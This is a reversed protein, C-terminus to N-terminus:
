MTTKYIYILGGHSATSYLAFGFCTFFINIILLCFITGVANLKQCFFNPNIKFSSTHCVAQVVVFSVLSLTSCHFINCLVYGVFIRSSLIFTLSHM